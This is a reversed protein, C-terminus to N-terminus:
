AGVEKFLDRVTLKLENMPATVSYGSSDSGAYRVNAASGQTGTWWFWPPNPLTDAGPGNHVSLSITRKEQGVYNIVTPTSGGSGFLPTKNEWVGQMSEFGAVAKPISIAGTSYNVTGASINGTLSAIKLGGAGDDFIRMLEKTTSDTGPYVREPRSIVVALELSRAVIPGSLTATWNSGGDTFTSVTTAHAVAETIAFTINTGKAPLNTPSFTIGGYGYAVTGTADGTLAGNSDVASKASGDNWTILLTGPKVARQLNYVMAFKPTGASPELTQSSAQSGWTLIVSSDVDPMAGLTLSVTGTTFNLTGAGISPSSGRIAGSGDEELVYWRGQALYSVQLSAKAPVPDLTMVYSLRQSTQTVPIGFSENVVEPTAAPVYTITRVGGGLPDTSLSLIGNDYDIAGVATGDTFQLVGGKDVLTVGNATVSVTGPMIGGGIFLNHGVTFFSHGTTSVTGDAAPVLAASKQNMRADAIPTESRASPVLQSFIGDVSVSFDGLDADETMKVVGYYRAADAVLTDYVKTKGTYVISADQRVAEFGPFDARLQDSIQCTVVLRVFEGQSDEFTYPLGDVDTIRVFQEVQSDLGENKRLVLTQGVPPLAVNERQILTIISQGTIHNGYLLGRYSAGQALYSEIRSAAATREDFSDNTNFLVVSVDPDDPPDAVIVHAGFYTDVNETRVAPFVKRLSVRGYVRDLESVDPFLNNSVGDTMPVGTAAGGGEPVDANVRSLMVQIDGELIAM